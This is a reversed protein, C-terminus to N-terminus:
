KESAKGCSRLSSDHAGFLRLFPSVFMVFMSVESFGAATAASAACTAGVLPLDFFPAGLFFPACVACGAALPRLAFAAAGFFSPLAAFFAVLGTVAFFLLAGRASPFPALIISIILRGFPAVRASIM